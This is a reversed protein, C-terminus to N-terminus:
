SNTLDIGLMDKAMAWSMIVYNDWTAKTVPDPLEQLWPNSAQKGEGIGTKQYLALEVGTGPKTSNVRALAGSLNGAFSAGAITATSPEVVGDQLAKNWAQQSGLRG